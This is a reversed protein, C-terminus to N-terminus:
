LALPQWAHRQKWAQEGALFEQLFLTAATIDPSECRYHEDPSGERYELAYTGAGVGARDGYGVQAYWGDARELVVYFNDPDLRRVIWELRRTDPDPITPLGEASVIFPPVYGAANPNLVHYGPEYCVLGQAAALERVVQDVEDARSWVCSLAAISDSRDPTVSWVGLMDIDDDSLSELPPFRDLLADLFVPVAPHPAFVDSDGDVWRQLKARADDASIPLPEHWVYLDYSM